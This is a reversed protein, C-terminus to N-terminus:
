RRFATMSCFLVGSHVLFDPYVIRQSASDMKEAILLVEPSVSDARFYSFARLSSEMMTHRYLANRLAHAYLMAVEGRVRM